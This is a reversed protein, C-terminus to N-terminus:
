QVVNLANSLLFGVLNKMSNFIELAEKLTKIFLHTNNDKYRFAKNILLLFAEEENKV